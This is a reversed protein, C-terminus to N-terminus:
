VSDGFSVFKRDPDPLIAPTREDLDTHLSCHFVAHSETVFSVEDLARAGAVSHRELLEDTAVVRRHATEGM